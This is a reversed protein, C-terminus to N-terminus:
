ERIWARHFQPQGTNADFFFRVVDNLHLVIVERERVDGVLNAVLRRAIARSHEARLSLM